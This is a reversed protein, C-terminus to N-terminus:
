VGLKLFVTVAVLIMMSYAGVMAVVLGLTDTLSDLLSVHRKQGYLGAVATTAKMMVHQLAVQLFPALCLALVALLGYTGVASKVTAASTLLTESADSVIGGVVPVTGSLAMKTAKLKLADASGAVVGTLSLFATFAFTLLKLTGATLWRLFERMKKLREDGLAAEAAALAALIYICPVLLKRILSMLLKLFFVTGFYLASSTGARGSTAALSALGPLLVTFYSDASEITRVGLDLMASMGGAFGATIAFAGVLGSLNGSGFLDTMACLLVAALLVGCRAIIKSIPGGLGSFTDQLLRLLAEGFSASSFSEYGGIQEQVQESLGEEPDVTETPVTGSGFVQTLLLFVLLAAILLRRLM